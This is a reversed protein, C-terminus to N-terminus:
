KTLIVQVEFPLLTIKSGFTSIPSYNAVINEGSMRCGEPLEVVLEEESFNAILVLRADNLKREYAFCQPHDELFAKFRGYIIVPHSKRLSILSKYFWWVSDKDAVCKDANIEQYNPNVEIWPLDSSFGSHIQDSWQMPTRSNDRGNSNAANIFDVESMGSEVQLKYMNLTEVDRFQEIETFSVNTMGLEEGQYIFPTGRMLHLIAALMKASETRYHVDDGFKSVARPLDHNGWFLSNWGDEELAYQWKFFVEKLKVLDFPKPKWKGYSEDWFETIHEFQFVMSLENREIGSYLLATEPTSSWTEGVTLINQKSFTKKNMEKLYKHLNPGNATIAMDVNKGILDIVDMRFGAIGRDLWWKMMEYIANRLEPNDWNLDPQHSLFQHFYYQNSEEDYTWAPGGFVSQLDNPLEGNPGADRWIYYDRFKSNRSCKANVFWDHEDSTHNVVLDMLVGIGRKRAETIFKDFELLTGYEPAIAQYDSIDYGNDRMPSAFVPSLWIIDIGLDELYDLRNIIGIIDGIGDGNSDQFSRPYIQYISSAHWWDKDDGNLVGSFTNTNKYDM